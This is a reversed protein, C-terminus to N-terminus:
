KITVKKQASYGSNIGMSSDGAIMARLTLKTKSKFSYTKKFAGTSGTTGKGVTVWRGGTYRQVTVAKGATRPNGAVSVSLKGKKPSSASFSPYQTVKITKVASNIEQSRVVFSYGTSVSRAAFEFWGNDDSDVETLYKFNAPDTEPMPAGWLEVPTNPAVTGSFMAKGVGKAPGRVTLTPTVPSAVDESEIVVEGTAKTVAAGSPTATGLKVYFNEDSEKLKDNLIEVNVTATTTGPAISLTGKASEYDQGAKASGDVTWWPISITQTTSTAEGNQTLDIRVDVSGEPEKITEDRIAASPPLDGPDDNIKYVGTSSTFGTLTTTVETATVGFSETPEDINDPKLYVDIAQGTQAGTTGAAVAFTQQTTPGDYDDAPTAAETGTGYTAVNLGVTYSYQSMGVVTPIVRLITGESGSAENFTITPKADDNSITLKSAHQGNTPVTNDIGGSALTPTVTIREDNEFVTDSNIPFEFYGVTQGAPITVTSDAPTDYDNVGPTAASNTGNNEASDDSLAVTFTTAVNNTATLTIPVKATATGTDGETVSADGVTWKPQADAGTEVITLTQPSVTSTSISNNPSSLAVKFTEGSGEYATDGVITVPISATTAGATITLSGDTAKYDTGNMATGDAFSYDIKVPIASAGSLTVTIVEDHDADTENFEEDATGTLTVTPSADDDDVIATASAPTGLAANTPNAITAKFNEPGEVTADQTTAVLRTISSNYAPITLTVDDQATFDTGSVAGYSTAMDTGSATDFVVTVANESPNSLMIPFGVPTSETASTPTGMSVVPAADDDTINITVTQDGPDDYEAAGLPTGNVAVTFAQTASEDVTDDWLSVTTTGSLQGAAITIAADDALATYDRYVGGTSLATGDVTALPITVDHSQVASLQATVTATKQTTVASSGTGTTTATEAYTTAGLLTFTVGDEDWITGTVDASTSATVDDVTLTFTENGEDEVADTTTDVTVTITNTGGATTGPFTYSTVSPATTYDTGGAEAYTAGVGAVETGFTIENSAGTGTYTVTFSVKGGEWNAGASVTLNTIAAYAPSAVFMAPVFGAASAAVAALVTRIRTRGWLTFPVRERPAAQIPRHRM